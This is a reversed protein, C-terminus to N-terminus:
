CVRYRGIPIYIYINSYLVTRVDSNDYEIYRYKFYIM